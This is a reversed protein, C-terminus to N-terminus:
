ETTSKFYGIACITPSEEGDLTKSTYEIVRNKNTKIPIHLTGKIPKGSQIKKIDQLIQTKTEPNVKNTASIAETFHPITVMGTEPDRKSVPLLSTVLGTESANCFTMTDSGIAYVWADINSERIVDILIKSSVHVTEEMKRTESVDLITSAAALRDSESRFVRGRDVVWLLSGDKKKLRYRNIHIAGETYDGATERKIRELDDPHIINELTGGSALLFEDRSDYGLMSVLGDNAFFIPGGQECYFGLFGSPANKAFFTSTFQNEANTVDEANKGTNFVGLVHNLATKSAELAEEQRKSASVDSLSGYFHRKEGQRGLFFLRMWIWVIEGNPQCRRFIGESGSITHEEAEKFLDKVIDADDPYVSTFINHYSATLSSMDEGTVNYYQRNMKALEYRGNHVTYIAIGGLINDLLTKNILNINFVDEFDIFDVPNQQMGGHDIQIANTLLKTFKEVPMPRHFHYGQAYNCGIDTLFDVQEQTEVGEAIVKLDLLTTMHLVSELISEGRSASNESWSLFGMDIKLVDVDLDKLVNLSSYGSGFDDMLITMGRTKLREVMKAVNNGGVFASETIELKLLSRDLDYKKILDRIVNPVDVSYADAQSINISIPVPQIGSDIWSRLQRCVEEWIYRDLNVIFGNEELVPIFTSPMVLGREPHNWRVLAEAGVIRGSKIDCQPQMYAVFERNELARQIELLLRVDEEHKRTAGEEYWAIRESLSEKISNRALVARDYVSKLSLGDNKLKCVGMIPFFGISEKYELSPAQIAANLLIEIGTDQPLLLAFGDGGFYGAVTPHNRNTERLRQAITKLLQDGADRGYWESFLRSDKIDLCLIEFLEDPHEGILAAAERFFAEPQFLGTLSDHDRLTRLQKEQLELEIKRENVREEIDLIFCMLMDPNSKRDVHALTQSTWHYEGSRLRQRFEARIEHEGTAFGRRIAAPSWFQVFKKRDEPHILYNAIDIIDNLSESFMPLDFKKEEYYLIKFSEDKLNVELLEDYISQQTFRAFSDKNSADIGKSAIVACNGHQPWNVSICSIEVWQELNVNYIVQRTSGELEFDHHNWPCDECSSTEGRLTSYCIDGLRTGPFLRKTEESLYVLQHERNIVYVNAIETRPDEAETM